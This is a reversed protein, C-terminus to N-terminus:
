RLFKFWYSGFYLLFRVKVTTAHVSRSSFLSSSIFSAFMMETPSKSLVWSSSLSGNLPNRRFGVLCVCFRLCVFRILSWRWRLHLVSDVLSLSKSKTSSFSWVFAFISSGVKKEKTCFSWALVSSGRLPNNVSRFERILPETRDMLLM